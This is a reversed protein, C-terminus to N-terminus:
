QISRAHSFGRPPQAKQQEARQVGGADPRGEFALRRGNKGFAAGAQALFVGVAYRDDERVGLEFAGAEAGGEALFL